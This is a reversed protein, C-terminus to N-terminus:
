KVVDVSAGSDVAKAADLAEQVAKKTADDLKEGHEDLSKTVSHVLSDLENRAEVAEKRKADAAQNREADKVMAEIEKDSLGGSSQIVIRQEKGSAKPMRTMGGVLLVETLEEKKVGSDKLCTERLRQM